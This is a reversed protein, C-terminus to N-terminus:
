HKGGGRRGDSTGADAKHIVEMDFSVRQEPTLVKRQAAIYSYEAQMLQGKSMLLNNIQADLAGQLPQDTVATVALQVKLARIGSMLAHKKKAFELHLRDLQAKQEVTLTKKWHDGFLHHRGHREGHRRGHGSHKGGGHRGGHQAMHKEGHRAGHKQMTGHMAKHGTGDEAHAVPLGAGLLAVLSVALGLERMNNSNITM